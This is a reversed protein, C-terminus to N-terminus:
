YGCAAASQLLPPQNQPEAPPGLQPLAPADGRLVPEKASDEATKVLPIRPQLKKGPAKKKAYYM